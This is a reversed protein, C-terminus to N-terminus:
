IVRVITTCLYGPIWVITVGLDYDVLLRPHCQLSGCDTWLYVPIWIITIGLDNNVLLRSHCQLSRCLGRQIVRVIATWLYCPIWVNIVGLGGEVLLRPHCQLCGCLGGRSWELLSQGCTVQLGSFLLVNIM